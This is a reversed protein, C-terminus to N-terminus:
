IYRRLHDRIATLTASNAEPVAISPPGPWATDTWEDGMFRRAREYRPVVHFHYHRDRMMLCLYNIKDFRFAEALARELRGVVAPFEMLEKTELEAGSIFTRNAALVLTGLTVQAKRVLVTWHETSFLTLEDAGFDDAFPKWLEM